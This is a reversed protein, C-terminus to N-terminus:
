MGNAHCEPVSTTAESDLHFDHLSNTLSSMLIILFLDSNLIFNFFYKILSSDSTGIQLLSNHGAQRRIAYFTRQERHIITTKRDM